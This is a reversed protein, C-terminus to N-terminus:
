DLFADIAKVYEDPCEIHPTHGCREFTLLECNPVARVLLKSHTHPAFNDQRGWIALTPLNIHNLKANLEHRPKALYGSPGVISRLQRLFATRTPFDTVLNVRRAAFKLMRKVSGNRLANRIMRFGTAGPRVAIQGMVEPFTVSFDIFTDKGIGAPATLILRDFRDPSAHVLELAIRGGLSWGGLTVCDLGLADLTAAIHARMISPTYSCNLPKDTKGCGLLDIAIVRRKTALPRLVGLWDEISGGLGHLLVLPVGGQGQTWYRTRVGGIKVYKDEFPAM